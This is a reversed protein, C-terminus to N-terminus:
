RSRRPGNKTPRTTHCDVGQHPGEAHSLWTMLQKRDVLHILLRDAERVSAIMTEEDLTRQLREMARATEVRLVLESLVLEAIATRVGSAEYAAWSAFAKAALYRKAASGLTGWANPEIAPSDRVIGSLRPRDLGEPILTLLRQYADVTTFPDYRQWASSTADGSPVVLALAALMSAFPQEAPKWRRLEEGACAIHVLADRTTGDPEGLRAVLFREWASYGTLDFLLDAKVLPPWAGTADLGEYEHDTPFAPPSEVISLRDTARVLGAAATPCFHSLTVFVGRDDVLARRPFHACSSPLAAEGHALHVRCRRASGDYFRCAGNSEPLLIAAGLRAQRDPEVPIPWGATCCAGSHQCAYTAHVNLAFVRRAAMM